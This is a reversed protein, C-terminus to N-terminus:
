NKLINEIDKDFEFDKKVIRGASSFNGDKFRFFLVEDQYLLFDEELMKYALGNKNTANYIPMDAECIITSTTEDQIVTTCEKELYEFLKQYRESYTDYGKQTTCELKFTLIFKSM